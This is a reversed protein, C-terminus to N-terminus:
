ASNLIRDCVKMYHSISTNVAIKDHPLVKQEDQPTKEPLIVVLMPALGEPEIFQHDQTFTDNIKIDKKLISM